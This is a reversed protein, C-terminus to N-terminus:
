SSATELVGVQAMRPLIMAASSLNNDNGGWPVDEGGGGSGDVPSRYRGRTAKRGRSGGAHRIQRKERNDTRPRLRRCM